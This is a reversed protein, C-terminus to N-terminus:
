ASLIAVLESSPISTAEQPKLAEAGSNYTLSCNVKFTQLMHDRKKSLLPKLHLWDTLPVKKKCWLFIDVNLSADGHNIGQWYVLRTHKEMVRNGLLQDALSM